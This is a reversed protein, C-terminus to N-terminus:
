YHSAIVIVTLKMTSQTLIKLSPYPYNEGFIQPKTLRFFSYEEGCFNLPIWTM